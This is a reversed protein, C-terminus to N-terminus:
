WPASYMIQDNRFNKCYKDHCISTHCAGKEIAGDTVAHIHASQEKFSFQAGYEFLVTKINRGLLPCHQGLQFFLVAQVLVFYGPERELVIGVNGTNYVLQFALLQYFSGLVCGVSSGPEKEDSRGAPLEYALQFWQGGGYQFLNGLSYLFFRQLGTILDDLLDNLVKLSKKEWNNTM